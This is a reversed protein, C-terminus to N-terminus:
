NRIIIDNYAIHSAYKFNISFVNINLRNYIIVGQIDLYLQKNVNNTYKRQKMM